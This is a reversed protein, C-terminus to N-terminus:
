SVTEGGILIKVTKTKVIVPRPRTRGTQDQTALRVCNLVGSSQSCVDSLV